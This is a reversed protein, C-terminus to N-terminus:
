SPNEILNNAGADTEAKAIEASSVPSAPRADLLLRPRAEGNPDGGALSHLRARFPNKLLNKWWRMSWRRPKRNEIMARSELIKRRLDDPVVIRILRQCSSFSGGAGAVEDAADAFSVFQQPPLKL